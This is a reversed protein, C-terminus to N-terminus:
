FISDGGESSTQLQQMLALELVCYNEGSEFIIAAHGRPSVAVCDPNAVEFIRGDAIYIQFLRFPQANLAARFQESTVM